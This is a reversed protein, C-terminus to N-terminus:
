EAPRNHIVEDITIRSSPYSALLKRVTAIAQEGDRQKPVVLRVVVTYTV